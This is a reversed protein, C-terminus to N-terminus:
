NNIKQFKQNRLFRILAEPHDTQLGDFGMATIKTWYYDNEKSSQIDVWVPIKLKKCFQIMAMSYNSWDGDLIDAPYKKLFEEVQKLDTINEPMSLMVPIEPAASKWIKIQDQSNLYVVIDKAMDETIIEQITQLVDAEKFDLYIKIKGKCYRLVEQFTPVVLASSDTGGKLQLNRIQTLSLDKVLGKGNTMRNVRADHMLILQNDRTTRLDIEVYDAGIEVASKIAALSNEPFQVHNGRHAIIIPQNKFLNQTAQQCTGLRAFGLLSTALLITKFNFKIMKFIENRIVEKL